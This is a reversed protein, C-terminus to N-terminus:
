PAPMSEEQWRWPKASAFCNRPRLLATRLPSWLHFPDHPRVDFLQRFAGIERGKVLNPSQDHLAARYGLREFDHSM